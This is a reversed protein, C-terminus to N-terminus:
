RKTERNKEDGMGGVERSLEGDRDDLLEDEMKGDMQNKMRMRKSRAAKRTREDDNQERTDKTKGV